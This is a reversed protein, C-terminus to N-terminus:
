RSRQGLRYMIGVTLEKLIEDKEVGQRIDWKARKGGNGHAVAGGGGM